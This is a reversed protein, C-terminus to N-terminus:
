PRLKYGAALISSRALIDTPDIANFRINYLKFALPLETCGLIFMEAGDEAMRYLEKQFAGTDYTWNGAKVGDYILAMVNKQGGATPILVRIGQQRLISSYLGTQLTGDTALLGISSVGMRAIEEATEKIMHLIPCGVSQAISAYYYHATNCAITLVDAGAQELRRASNILEKLPDPGRRLIAESRDPIATNSDLIVHIHESDRAADTMRTIKGFLDASALPGMGGIIGICGGM